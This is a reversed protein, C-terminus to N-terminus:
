SVRDFLDFDEKYLFNLREIHSDNLIISSSSSINDKPVRFRSSINNLNVFEIEPLFYFEKPIFSSQTFFHHPEEISSLDDFNTLVIEAINESNFTTVGLRKKLWHKGTNVRTGDIFYHSLMSKFRDIPNRVVVIGKSMGLVQSEKLPKRSKFFKEKLVASGNKPVEVWVTNRNVKWLYGKTRCYVCNCSYDM